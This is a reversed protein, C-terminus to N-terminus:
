LVYERYFLLIYFDIFENMRILTTSFLIYFSLVYMRYFNLIPFDIFENM